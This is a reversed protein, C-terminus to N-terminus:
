PKNRRSALKAPMVYVHHLYERTFAVIDAADSEKVDKLDDPHAGVNGTLRIEHAFDKLPSTIRGNRFLDEIQEVLRGGKAGLDSVSAQVARRCMVVTAKYAKVWQCRLAESFDEAIEKPVEAPVSDDATGLPYFSTLEWDHIGSKVKMGIVLAFKKCKECQVVNVIRIFGDPFVEQYSNTVPKFYSHVKCFPCIGSAGVQALPSFNVIEM